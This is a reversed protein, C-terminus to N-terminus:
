RQLEPNPNTRARKRSERNKQLARVSSAPIEWKGDVKTAGDIRGAHLLQFIYPITFGLERATESVSLEKLSNMTM